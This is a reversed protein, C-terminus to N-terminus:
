KKERVLRFGVRSGRFGPDYNSRIASRTYQAYNDWSGGRIVRLSGSPDLLPPQDTVIKLDAHCNPCKM